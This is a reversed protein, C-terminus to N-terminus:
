NDGWQNVAVDDTLLECWILKEGEFIFKGLFKRGNLM